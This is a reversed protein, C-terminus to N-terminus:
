VFLASDGTKANRVRSAYGEFFFPISDETGNEIRGKTKEFALISIEFDPQGTVLIPQNGKEYWFYKGGFNRRATEFIYSGIINIIWQKEDDKIQLLAQHAEELIEDIYILSKESYDLKNKFKKKFQETCIESNQIIKQTFEDLPEADRKNVSIVM